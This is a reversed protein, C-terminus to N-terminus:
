GPRRVQGGVLDGDVGVAPPGDHGHGGAPRHALQGGLQAEGLQAHGPRHAVQDLEADGVHLGGAPRGGGCRPGPRPAAVAAAFGSVSSTTTGSGSPSPAHRSAVLAVAGALDGGHGLGAGRRGRVAPGPGPGGVVKRGARQRRLGPCRRATGAPSTGDRPGGARGRARRRGEAVHGARRRGAGVVGTARGGPPLGLGAAHRGHPGPSVPLAGATRGSASRRGGRAGGRHRGPGGRDRGSATTRGPGASAARTRGLASRIGGAGPSPRLGARGGDSAGRRGPRDGALGSRTGGVGSPPSRLPPRWPGPRAEARGAGPLPDGNSLPRSPGDGSPPSVPCIRGTPGDESGGSRWQAASSRVLVPGIPGM